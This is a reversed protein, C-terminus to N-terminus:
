KKIFKNSKSLNDKAWLPQLNCLANVIRAETENSFKSIPKKHDIHWKGHNEWNMGDKFNFEIREKFKYYDYGLIKITSNNKNKGSRMLFNRLLTRYAFKYKNKRIYNLQWANFKDKNKERYKKNHKARIKNPITKQYESNKRKLIEINIIRYNKDYEKKNEKKKDRKEKLCLKCISYLGDPKSKDNTFLSLEKEKECSICIKM